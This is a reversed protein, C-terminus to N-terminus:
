LLFLYLQKNNIEPKSCEMYSFHIEWEVGVPIYISYRYLLKDEFKNKSIYIFRDFKCPMCSIYTNIKM